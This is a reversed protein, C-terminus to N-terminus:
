RSRLSRNRLSATVTAYVLYARYPRNRVIRVLRTARRFRDAEGQAEAKTRKIAEAYYTFRTGFTKPSFARDTVAPLKPKNDAM